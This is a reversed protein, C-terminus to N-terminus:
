FPEWLTQLSVDTQVQVPGQQLVALGECTGGLAAQTCQGHLKLRRM